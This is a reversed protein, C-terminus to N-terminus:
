ETDSITRALLTQAIESGEDALRQLTVADGMESAIEARRDV